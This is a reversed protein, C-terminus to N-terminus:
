NNSESLIETKPKRPELEDDLIGNKFMLNLSQFISISSIGYINFLSAIEEATKDGKHIVEGLQKMYFNNRFKHTKFRTSVQFGDALNEYKLDRRFSIRDDPRVTLPMHRHIMGLLLTKLDDVNTFNAQEYVRYGNPWHDDANCPSILKVSREVMNFLFGSVCATSGAFADDFPEQNKEAKRKNYERARGSNSKPIGTEPNQLVLRVFTLEEPTFEKYLQELMKLSVISFRNLLCGKELSLKLLSRTRAPSKLPQATTTQPFVGLIAHFDSCFREYDPNDLPDTACYCFGAGATLGLIEKMLELVKRWLKANEQNYTFIDGLRPASVGCFWCGVSCGKSLEFCMPAHITSYNQENLESITRAIQRERWAKFRPERPSDAIQKLEYCWKLQDNVFQQYNGVCPLSPKAECQKRNLLQNSLSRIEESDLNLNYHIVAQNPNALIQQRFDPDAQWREFFRKIQSIQILEKALEENSLKEAWHYEQSTSGPLFCRVHSIHISLNKKDGLSPNAVKMLHFEKLKKQLILL